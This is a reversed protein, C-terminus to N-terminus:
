RDLDGAASGARVSRWAAVVRRCGEIIRAVADADSLADAFWQEAAPWFITRGIAFGRVIPEHAAATFAAKLESEHM